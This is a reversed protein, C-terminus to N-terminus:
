KWVGEEAWEQAALWMFANKMSNPSIAKFQGFLWEWEEKTGIAPGRGGGIKQCHNMCSAASMFDASYTTVKSERKCPFFDELTDVMVFRAKSHIQWDAEEWSRYDGPAGCEEGGTIAVLRETPLASSFININSVMGVYEALNSASFFIFGSEMRFGHRQPYGKEAFTPKAKEYVGEELVQGNVVLAM